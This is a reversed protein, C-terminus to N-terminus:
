TGHQTMQVIHSLHVYLIGWILAVYFVAHVKDVSSLKILEVM